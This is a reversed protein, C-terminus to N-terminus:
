STLAVRAQFSKQPSSRQFNQARRPGVFRGLTGLGYKGLTRLISFTGLCKRNEIKSKLAFRGLHSADWPAVFRGLVAHPLPDLVLVLVLVLVLIYALPPLLLAYRHLPTVAVYSRPSQHKRPARTLCLM